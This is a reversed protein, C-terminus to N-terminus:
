VLMAIGSAANGLQDKVAQSTLLNYAITGPPGDVAVCGVAKGNKFIPSAVIVGLRKGSDVLSRFEGHSLGQTIQKDLADWEEKSAKLYPEWDAAVDAYADGEREVCTGIIGKGPRWILGTTENYHRPRERHLRRLRKLRWYPAYWARMRPRDLGVVYAAIGLDKPNIKKQTIDYISWFCTRVHTAVHEDLARRRRGRYDTWASSTASCFALAAAVLATALVTEESFKWVKATTMATILTLVGAAVAALVKIM